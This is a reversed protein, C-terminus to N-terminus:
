GIGLLNDIVLIFFLNLSLADRSRASLDLTLLAPREGPDGCTHGLDIEGFSAEM